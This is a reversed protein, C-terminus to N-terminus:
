VTERQVARFTVISDKGGLKAVQASELTQAALVIIVVHLLVVPTEQRRHLVFKRVNRESIDKKVRM